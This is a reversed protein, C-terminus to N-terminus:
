PKALRTRGSTAMGFLEGDVGFEAITEAREM